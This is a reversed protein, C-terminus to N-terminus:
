FPPPANSKAVLADNLKREATIRRKTDQARTRRRKPMMAGRDGAGPAVSDPLTLTGTPEALSPILLKSGPYSTYEHGTPSTWIVSADPLQRDRWGGVGVWFTKLLHHVRCLCKLNSAHTPGLPHPMTHDLDCQYAPKDCGPFRCTLDRCRVFEALARSPVYGSEPPGDGPHILPRVTARPLLEGLQGETLVGGGVIVAPPVTGTAEVSGKNDLTADEDVAETKEATAAEVAAAEAVIHVVLNKAAGSVPTGACDERGCTCGLETLAALAGVADARREDHSRPDEPCVSNAMEDLRGDLLAGDHANLRGLVSTTGPEDTPSGVELYRQRSASASKRLAGPDHKVVLADISRVTKAASWAGWRTVQAALEADVRSLADPDQILYTRWVIARALDADILGAAFLAAIKPLRDRLAVGTRALSLAAWQSVGQAAGLEAGVATCPDVWWLDRDQATPTDTRRIFLEAMAAFKRAAAAAEARAWGRLTDILAADDLAALDAIEAFSGDFMCEVSGGGVPAHAVFVGTQPHFRTQPYSVDGGGPRNRM